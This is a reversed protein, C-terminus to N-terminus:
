LVSRELFAALEEISALTKCVEEGEAAREYVADWTSCGRLILVPEGAATWAPQSPYRIWRSGERALEFDSGTGSIGGYFECGDVQIYLRIWSICKSYRLIGESICDPGDWGPLSILM